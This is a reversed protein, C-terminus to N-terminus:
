TLKEIWSDTTAKILQFTKRYIEFSQGYPDLIERDGQWKGVLVIKDKVTPDVALVAKIHCKEMVMILQNAQCIQPTLQRAQHNTCDIGLMATLTAAHQNMPQGVNAKIGASTINKHPFVNQLLLGAMASRCTNAFCVVLIDNQM